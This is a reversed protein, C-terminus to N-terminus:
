VVGAQSLRRRFTRDLHCNHCVIDCKLAENPVAETSRCWSQAVNFSKEPPNRHDFQMVHPPFLFGCDSCPRRRLTLLLDRKPVARRQRSLSRPTQLIHGKARKEAWRRAQLGYTRVTHCNACVIDCKAVEALLRERKMLMARGTTVNFSKASPDRHDFDMQHPEFRGGCDMCPVRRLDRLYELTARQRTMVRDIERQRNRRYYSVNYPRQDRTSPVESFIFLHELRTLLVTRSRAGHSRGAML